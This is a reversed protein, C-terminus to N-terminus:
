DEVRARRARYARMAVQAGCPRASCYTGSGNRTRDWFGQHCPPNQCAKVRSWAGALALEAAAALVRGFFGAVGQQAPLLRCGEATVVPLVPHLEAFRHLRLEAQADAVGGSHALLVEVLAGRLERAAAADMDSASVGDGLWASLAAGSGLREGSGALDRTNVFGLLLDAAAPPQTTM